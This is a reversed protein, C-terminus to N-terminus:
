EYSRLEQLIHAIEESLEDKFRVFEEHGLKGMSYDLELDKFARLAREKQDLLRTRADSVPLGEPQGGAATEVLPAAVFSALVFSLVVSLAIWVATM